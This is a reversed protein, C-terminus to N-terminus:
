KLHVCIVNTPCKKNMHCQYSCVPAQHDTVLAQLLISCSIPWRCVVIIKSYGIKRKMFCKKSTWNQRLRGHHKRHKSHKGGRMWHETIGQQKIFRVSNNNRHLTNSCYECLPLFDHMTKTGGEFKINEESFFKRVM